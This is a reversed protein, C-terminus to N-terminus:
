VEGNAAETDNQTVSVAQSGRDNPRTVWCNHWRMGVGKGMGFSSVHLIKLDGRSTM